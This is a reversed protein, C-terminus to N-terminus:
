FLLYDISVSEKKCLIFRSPGEFGIKSLKDVTLIRNQLVDLLFIREKPLCASDWCLKLPMEVEKWRQSQIILNCGKKVYYKGDKSAGWILKDVREMQNVKRERIIREFAEKERSDM